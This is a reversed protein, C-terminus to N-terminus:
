SKASLVFKRLELLKVAYMCAVVDHSQCVDAAWDLEFVNNRQYVFPFNGHFQKACQLNSIYLGMAVNSRDHNRRSQNANGM